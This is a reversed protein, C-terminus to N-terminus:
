WMYTKNKLYAQTVNPWDWKLALMARLKLLSSLDLSSTFGGESIREASGLLTDIVVLLATDFDKGPKFAEGPNLGATKLAVLYTEEEIPYNQGIRSEIAELNTM